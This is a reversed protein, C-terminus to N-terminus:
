HQFGHVEAAWNHRGHRARSSLEELVAVCAERQNIVNGNPHTLHALNQMGVRILLRVHVLEALVYKALVTLIADVHFYHLLIRAFLDLRKEALCQKCLRQEHNDVLQSSRVALEPVAKM